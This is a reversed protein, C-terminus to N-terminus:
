NKRLHDLLEFYSEDCSCLAYKYKEKTKLLFDTYVNIMESVFARDAENGQDLDISHIANLLVFFFYNMSGELVRQLHRESTTMIYLLYNYQRQMLEIIDDHNITVKEWEGVMLDILKNFVEFGM